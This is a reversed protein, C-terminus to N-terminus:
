PADRLASRANDVSSYTPERSSIGREANEVSSRGDPTVNTSDRGFSSASPRSSRGKEGRM